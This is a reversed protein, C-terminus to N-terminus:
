PQGGPGRTRRLRDRARISPPNVPPRSLEVYHNRLARTSPTPGSTTLAAAANAALGIGAGRWGDVAGGITAGVAWAVADGLTASLVTSRRTELQLRQAAGRMEDAIVAAQTYDDFPDVRSASASVAAAMDERFVTFAADDRIKVMDSLRIAGAGRLRLRMLESLTWPDGGIDAPQARLAALSPLASAEAACSILRTARNGALSSLLDEQRLFREALTRSRLYLDAQDSFSLDGRQALEIAVRPILDALLSELRTVDDRSPKGLAPAVLVVHARILPALRCIVEIGYIPDLDSGSAGTKVTATGAGGVLSIADGFPDAIVASHAYLLLSRVDLSFDASGNRISNGSPADLLIGGRAIDNISHGVAPRLEGPRLPSAAGTLAQDRLLELFPLGDDLIPQADDIRSLVDEASSGFYNEIFDVMTPVPNEAPTM